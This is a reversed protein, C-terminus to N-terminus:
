RDGVVITENGHLLSPDYLFRSCNDCRVPRDGRRVETVRQRVLNMSCGGCSGDKIPVLATGPYRENLLTYVERVDEPLRAVRRSQESQLKALDSRKRETQDSIRARERDAEEKLSRRNEELRAVERQASEEAELADLGFSDLQEIKAELGTIEHNMAELERNTKVSNQQLRYKRIKERCSDAELEAQRRGDRSKKFKAQAVEIEQQAKKERSDLDRLMSPYLHLQERLEAIGRDLTCLDLLQTVLEKM